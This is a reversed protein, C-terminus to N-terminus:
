CQVSSLANKLREFFDHCLRGSRPQSSIAEEKAGAATPYYELGFDNSACKQANTKM